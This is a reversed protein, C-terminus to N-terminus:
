GKFQTVLDSLKKNLEADTLKGKANLIESGLGAINSAWYKGGVSSGQPHAFERQAAIAQQAPDAKITEDELANKNTPILGRENYRKIQSQESTLYYALAQATTPYKTFANVGVVKYGGFSHLQKQEGDM